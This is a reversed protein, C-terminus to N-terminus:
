HHHQRPWAGQGKFYEIIGKLEDMTMPGLRFAVNDFDSSKVEMISIAVRKLIRVREKQEQSTDQPDAQKGWQEKELYDKTAEARQDIDVVTGERDRKADRKPKYDSRVTKVGNWKDKGSMEAKIIADIWNVQDRKFLKQIQRSKM